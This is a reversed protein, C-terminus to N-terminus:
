SNGGSPTAGPRESREPEPAQCSCVMLDAARAIVLGDGHCDPCPEPLQGRYEVGCGLCRLLDEDHEVVLESRRLPGNATLREWAARVTDDDAGPGLRLTVRRPSRGATHSELECIAGAVLGWEHM